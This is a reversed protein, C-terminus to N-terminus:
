INTQRVPLVLFLCNDHETEKIIAPAIPSTLEITLFESGIAKVCDSIFSANFAIGCDKGKLSISINENLTGHESRSEIHLVGERIDMKILNSKETRSLLGARDLANELLQKNVVVNTNSTLPIIQKYNVFQGTLLRTSLTIHGLDAFLFNNELYITVLENEILLKSLELLSRGPVIASM